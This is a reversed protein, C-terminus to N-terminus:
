QTLRASRSCFQMIMDYTNADPLQPGFEKIFREKIFIQKESLKKDIINASSISTFRRTVKTALSSSDAFSVRGIHNSILSM